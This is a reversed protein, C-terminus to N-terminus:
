PHYDRRLYRSVGLRRRVHLISGERRLPRERELRGDEPILYMMVINSLRISLVQFRRCRRLRHGGRILVVRGGPRRQHESLMDLDGLDKHLLGVEAADNAEGAVARIPPHRRQCLRIRRFFHVRRQPLRGSAKGIKM